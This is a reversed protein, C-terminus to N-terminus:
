GGSPTPSPQPTPSPVPQISPEGPTSPMPPVPPPQPAPNPKPPVIEVVRGYNGNVLLGMNKLSISENDWYSSHSSINYSSGSGGGQVLFQRAGFSYDSPDTGFPGESSLTGTIVGKDGREGKVPLHGIDAIFDQPSEGVWVQDAGLEGAKMAGSGPSGVLILQDAFAGRREQAALGVVLSGYSHGLVTFLPDKGVQHSARLGDTFSTLPGAARKAIYPAAVSRDALLGTLDLQPADYEFWMISAVARQDASKDAEEWLVTARRADALFGDLKTGTGPVSTVINDATDPDGYSIATRGLGGLGVSLLLAPPIGKVGGLALSKSISDIQRLKLELDKIEDKADQSSQRLQTLRRTIEDQQQGLYARNARDRTTAPIGNLGGILHPVTTILQEQAPHGLQRWWANIQASLQPDPNTRQLAQLEGLASTDGNTARTLLYSSGNAGLAFGGFLGFAAMAPSTLGGDADQQLIVLRRKLDPVQSTAWAGAGAIQKAPLTPLGAALLEGTVRTAAMALAHGAHDLDRVLGTMATVDMGLFGNPDPGGVRNMVSTVRPVPGRQGGLAQIQEALNDIASQFAWQMTTRQDALMDRFRTAGGGVWSNALMYRMCSDLLPVHEDALWLM